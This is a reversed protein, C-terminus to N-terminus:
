GHQTAEHLSVDPQSGIGDVLIEVPFEFKVRLILLDDWESQSVFNVSALCKQALCVAGTWSVSTPGCPVVSWYM